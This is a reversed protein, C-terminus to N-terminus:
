NALFLELAQTSEVLQFNDRIYSALQKQEVPVTKKILIYDVQYKIIVENLFSPEEHTRQIDYYGEAQEPLQVFSAHRPRVGVVNHGTLGSLIHSEIEDAFIVKTQPIDELIGYDLSTDTYYSQQYTYPQWDAFVDMKDKTNLIGLIIIM